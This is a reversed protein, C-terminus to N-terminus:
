MIRRRARVRSMTRSPTRASRSRGRRRGRSRNREGLVNGTVLGKILAYIGIAALIPPYFFIIGVALGGLFWVVAITIMVLGGVVGASIGRKEPGFFEPDQDPNDRRIRAERYGAGCHPCRPENTPYRAGCAPCTRELVFKQKRAPAGNGRPPPPPAANTVGGALRMRRSCHPCDYETGPTSDTVTFSQRCTPCVVPTAM